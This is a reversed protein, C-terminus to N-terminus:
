ATKPQNEYIIIEETRVNDLFEKDLGGETLVDVNMGLKEKLDMHFGALRFLGRLAGKDKILIDIDSEATADGRAYSGFLSLKHIGYERAVPAVLAKIENINYIKDTM